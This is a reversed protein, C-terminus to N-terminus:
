NSCTSRGPSTKSSDTFQTPPQSRLRGGLRGFNSAPADIETLPHRQRLRRAGTCLEQSARRGNQESARPYPGSSQPRLKYKGPPLAIRFKGTSDTDVSTVQHGSADFVDLKAQYPALNPTGITEHPRVPRISVQGTIGSDGPMQSLNAAMKTPVGQTTIRPVTTAGASGLLAPLAALWAVAARSIAKYLM